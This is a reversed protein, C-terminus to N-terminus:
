RLVYRCATTNASQAPLFAMKKFNEGRSTRVKFPAQTATRTNRRARPRVLKGFLDVQKGKLVPDTSHNQEGYDSDSLIYVPRNRLSQPIYLQTRKTHCAWIWTKSIYFRPECQESYNQSGSFKRFTTDMSTSRLYLRPVHCLYSFFSSM